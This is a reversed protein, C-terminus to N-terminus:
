LKRESLLSCYSRGWDEEEGSYVIGTGDAARWIVQAGSWEGAKNSKNPSAGSVQHREQLSHLNSSYPM